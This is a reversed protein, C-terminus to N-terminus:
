DDPPRQRQQKTTSRRHKSDLRRAVAGRSPRTKRRRAPEPATAAVLLAVLRAEAARRNHLQSRHQTATVILVGDVLQNALRDLARQKIPEPLASSAGIDWRLDVKSDATNVSQGGPGGARAFRWSLEERPISIGSRIPLASTVGCPHGVSVIESLV